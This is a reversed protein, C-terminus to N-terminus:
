GLFFGTSANAPWAEQLRPAQIAPDPPQAAVEAGRPQPLAVTLDTAPPSPRGQGGGSGGAITAHAAPAALLACAALLGMALVKRRRALSPQLPVEVRDRNSM